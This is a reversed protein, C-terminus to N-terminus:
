RAKLDSCSLEVGVKFANMLSRSVEIDKFMAELKHTFQSGCEATREVNAINSQWDATVDSALKSNALCAKRRM